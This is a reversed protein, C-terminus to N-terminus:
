LNDEQIHETLPLRFRGEPIVEYPIEVYGADEVLAIDTFMDIILQKAVNFKFVIDREENFGVIEVFYISKSPWTQLRMQIVKTEKLFENMHSKGRGTLGDM